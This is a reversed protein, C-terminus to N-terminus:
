LKLRYFRRGEPANMLDTFTVQNTQFRVAGIQSWTVSDSSAEIAVSSEGPTGLFTLVTAAGRREIDSVLYLPGFTSPRHTRYFRNGSRNATRDQYVYNTAGFRILDITTWQLRDPSVQVLHDTNRPGVLTLVTSGDEAPRIGTILVTNGPTGSSRSRYYRTVGPTTQSDTYTGVSNTGLNVLGVIRWSVLDSSVEIVQDSGIPGTVRLQTQSGTAPLITLSVPPDPLAEFRAAFSAATGGELVYLRFRDPDRVWYDRFSRGVIPPHYVQLGAREGNLTGIGLFEVTWTASSPVPIALGEIRVPQVGPRLRIEPSQYILEGPPAIPPDPPPPLPGNNRYIRFIARANMPLNTEGTVEFSMASLTRATGAFTVEDGYEEPRSLFVNLSTASNDYVLEARARSIGLGSFHLLIGFVGTLLCKAVILSKRPAM